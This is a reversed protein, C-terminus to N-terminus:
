PRRPSVLASAIRDSLVARRPLRTLRRPKTETSRATSGISPGRVTPTPRRLDGCRNRLSRAHDGSAAPTADRAAAAREAGLSFKGRIAAESRDTNLRRWQPRTPTSRGYSSPSHEGAARRFYTPVWCNSLVSLSMSPEEAFASKM